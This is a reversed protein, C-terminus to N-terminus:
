KKSIKKPKTVKKSPKKKPSKKSKSQKKSTKRSNSQKKPKPAKKPKSTKKSKSQKRFVIKTKTEKPQTINVVVPTAYGMIERELMDITANVDAGTYDIIRKILQELEIRSKGKLIQNRLIRSFLEQIKRRQNYSYYTPILSTGWTYMRDYLPEELYIGRHIIPQYITSKNQDKIAQVASAMGEEITKRLQKNDYPTSTVAPTPVSVSTPPITPTPIPRSGPPPLPPLPVIGSPIPPMPPALPVTSGKSLLEELRAKRERVQVSDRDPGYIEDATVIKGGFNLDYEYGEKM